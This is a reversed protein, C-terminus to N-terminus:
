QETKVHTLLVVWETAMVQLNLIAWKARITHKVIWRGRLTTLRYQSSQQRHQRTVEVRGHDNLRGQLRQQQSWLLFMAATDEAASASSDFAFYFGQATPYSYFHRLVSSTSVGNAFDEQLANRNAPIACHENGTRASYPEYIHSRAPPREIRKKVRNTSASNCFKQEIKSDRSAALQM